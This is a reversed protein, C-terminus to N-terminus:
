SRTYYQFRKLFRSIVEVPSPTDGSKDLLAELDTLRQKIKDFEDRPIYDRSVLDRFERMLADRDHAEPNSGFTVDSVEVYQPGLFVPAGDEEVGQEHYFENAEDGTLELMYYFGLSWSDAYREVHKRYREAAFTDKLDFDLPDGVLKGDKEIRFGLWRGMERNGYFLDGGHAYLIPVSSQGRWFAPVYDVDKFRVSQNWVRTGHADKAPSSLVPRLIGKEKEADTVERLEGSSIDRYIRVDATKESAPEFRIGDHKKCHSRAESASWVTKDYRYAQEESKKNKGSGKIGFIISYEKGNEAKRKGRGFSDYQKPDKLRCAHENPYPRIVWEPVGQKLLEGDEDTIIDNCGM